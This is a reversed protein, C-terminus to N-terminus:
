FPFVLYLIRQDPWVPHRAVASPPLKSLVGEIKMVSVSIAASEIVVAEEYGQLARRYCFESASM